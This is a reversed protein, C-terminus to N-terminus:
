ALLTMLKQGSFSGEAGRREEKVKGEEKGVTLPTKEAKIIQVFGYKM